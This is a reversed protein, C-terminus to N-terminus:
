IPNLKTTAERCCVSVFFGVDTEGECNGVFFTSGPLRLLRPLFGLFLRLYVCRIHQASKQVDSTNKFWFLSSKACLLQCLQMKRCICTFLHNSPNKNNNNNKVKGSVQLRDCECLCVCVCFSSKYLPGCGAPYDSAMAEGRCKKHISSM